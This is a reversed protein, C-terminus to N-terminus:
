STATPSSPPMASWRRTQRKTEGALSTLVKGGTGFSPDLSGPGAAAEANTAAAAMAMPLGSAFLGALASRARRTM